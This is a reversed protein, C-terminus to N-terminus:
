SKFINIEIEDQYTICAFCSLFSFTNRGNLLKLTKSYESASSTSPRIRTILAPSPPPEEQLVLSFQSYTLLAYSAPAKFGESIRIKIIYNLHQISAQHEM